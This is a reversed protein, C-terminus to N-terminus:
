NLKERLRILREARTDNLESSAWIERQAQQRRDVLLASSHPISLCRKPFNKSEIAATAHRSRRPRRSAAADLLALPEAGGRSYSISIKLEPL